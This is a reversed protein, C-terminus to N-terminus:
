SCAKVHDMLRLAFADYGMAARDVPTTMPDWEGDQIRDWVDLVADAAAQANRVPVICGDVGDRMYDNAGAHSTTVVYVGCALAELISRAMGEEITPMLYVDAEQLWAALAQPTSRQFWEIPIDGYGEQEYVTRFSETMARVCTFRADPVVRKIKRFAEFLYPAGKRLSLLGSCAVTLPRQSPRAIQPPKFCELDVPYPLRLLRTEPVGRDLFSKKVYRSPVFIYDALAVSQQQRMHHTPWIPPLSCGWRAHEEAVLSWFNSPHSNRADLFVCGGEAKARALTMNIYGLGALVHCGSRLHKEVWRDFFPSMSFRAIEQLYPSRFSKAALYEPLFLAPRRRVLSPDIGRPSHRLANLYMELLGHEQFVRAHHDSPGRLPNAVLFKKM